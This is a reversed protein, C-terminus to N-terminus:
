LAGVTMGLVVTKGRRKDDTPAVTLMTRMAQEFREVERDNKLTIGAPPELGLTRFAERLRHLADIVALAGPNM